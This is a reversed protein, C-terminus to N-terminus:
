RKWLSWPKLCDLSVSSLSLTIGLNQKGSESSQAGVEASFLYIPGQMQRRPTPVAFTCNSRKLFPDPWCHREAAQPLDLVCPLLPLFLNSCKRQPAWFLFVRFSTLPFALKLTEGNQWNQLSFLEVKHVTLFAVLHISLFCSKVKPVCFCILCLVTWTKQTRWTPPPSRPGPQMPGQLVGVFPSGNLTHLINLPSTYLIEEWSSSFFVM